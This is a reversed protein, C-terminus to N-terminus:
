PKGGTDNIEGAFPHLGGFRVQWIRGAQAYALHQGDPSWAPFQANEALRVTEVLSYPSVGKDGTLLAVYLDCKGAELSTYALKRGDPSFAPWAQLGREAVLLHAEGPPDLRAVFLDYQDLESQAYALARGDPSWAPFAYNMKESTCFPAVSLGSGDPQVLGIVFRRGPRKFHFAILRGDPSWRPCNARLTEHLLPREERTEVDVIYLEYREGPLGKEFAIQRGDPSWSPVQNFGESATLHSVQGTELDFTSLGAGGGFVIVFALRAGDPSYAPMTCDAGIDVLPAREIEVLRYRVRQARGSDPELALFTTWQEQAAEEEELRELIVALSFRAEPSEPALEVAREYATRAEAFEEVAEWAAGLACQAEASRPRAEAAEAAVLLAEDTRELAILLRVQQVCAADSAPDLAAAQEYAKLAEERRGASALVEGVFLWTDVEQPRLRSLAACTGVLADTEGAAAQARALYKLPEPDEADWERWLDCVRQVGEWRRQQLWTQATSSLFQRKEPAEPLDTLLSQLEGNVEEWLGLRAYIAVLRERAERRYPSVGKDGKVRQLAAQYEKVAQGYIERQEYIGALRLHPEPSDPEAKIWKQCLRIAVAVEGKQVAEEVQQRYGPETPENSQSVVSWLSRSWLGCVVLGCVQDAPRVPPAFNFCMLVGLALVFPQSRKM